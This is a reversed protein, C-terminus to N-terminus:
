SAITVPLMEGALASIRENQALAHGTLNTTSRAPMACSLVLGM